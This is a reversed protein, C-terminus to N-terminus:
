GRKKQSVVVGAGLVILAAATWLMWTSSMGETSPSTGTSGSEVVDAYVAIPSLDPAFFTVEKKDYDVNKVELTEWVGRVTSYHLVVVNKWATTMASIAITVTYDKTGAKDTDPVLDFFETVMTKNKIANDVETGLSVTKKAELDAIQTKVETKVDKFEEAGTVIDFKGASAGSEVVPESKSPAASVSLASALVLVMMMVVALVRKKMKM